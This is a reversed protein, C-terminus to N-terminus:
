SKVEEKSVLPVFICGLLQERRFDDGQRTIRYLIQHEPWGVPIVLRGGDALQETLAPPISQAAATVLIANYPAAEEYGYQGNAVHFAVRPAYGLEELIERARKALHPRIEVTHVKDVIEALVATQYGSGTGVELVRDEKKLLSAQTMCAVMYPQSMTQGEGIPVPADDYARLWFEVPLFLHRPIKEMARLVREDIIDRLRLQYEVMEKRRKEFDWLMATTFLM